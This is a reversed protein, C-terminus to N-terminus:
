IMELQYNPSIVMSLFTPVVAKNTQKQKQNGLTHQAEQLPLTTYLLQQTHM